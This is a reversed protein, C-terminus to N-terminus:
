LIGQYLQELTVKADLCPVEFEGTEDLTELSWGKGDRKCVTVFRSNQSIMVYRTLSPLRTYEELKKTIDTQAASDSLVEVIFCPNDVFYDDDGPACSM